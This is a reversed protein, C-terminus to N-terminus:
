RRHITINGSVIDYPQGHASVDACWEEPVQGRVNRLLKDPEANSGQGNDQVYIGFGMGLLDPNTAKEYVGGIWAENGVVSLCTLRGHFLLPPQRHLVLEFSGRVAGDSDQKVHFSMTRWDGLTNVYHGSGTVATTGAHDRMFTQQNADPGLIAETGGKTGSDCSLLLPLVALLLLSLLRKM